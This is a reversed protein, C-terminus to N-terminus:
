SIWIAAGVIIILVIAPEVIAQRFTEGELLSSFLSTIAYAPGLLILGYSVPSIPWYHFAATLQGIFLATIVSPIFAWKGLLRLNLTRLCVLGGALALAPLILFLRLDASRLAVALALFLAFSIATLMMTAPAHRVDSPDVVIYEAILVLMLIIGAVFFGVWWLPGLPMQSLPLGIVLATLAPLFWHQITKKNGLAPHDRLMWDAGTATLGAVLIAILTRTNFQFELYLGPLQVSLERGPIDLFSALAYALLIMAALISLRERDPFNRSEKPESM